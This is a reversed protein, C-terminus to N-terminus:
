WVNKLGEAMNNHKQLIYLIFKELLHKILTM